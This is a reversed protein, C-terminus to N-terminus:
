LARSTDPSSKHEKQLETGEILTQIRFRAQEVAEAVPEGLGHSVDLAIWRAQEEISTTITQDHNRKVTQAAPAEYNEGTALNENILRVIKAATEADGADILTYNTKNHGGHAPLIDSHQFVKGLRNLVDKNSPHIRM